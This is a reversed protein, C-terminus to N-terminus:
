FSFLDDFSNDKKSVRLDWELVGLLNSLKKDILAEEMADTDFPLERFWKPLKLEDVPYAISTIGIPNPKLKCVVVKAGDTIAMSYHDNYIRRLKNWNLSAAVHGPTSTKKVVARPNLNMKEQAMSQNEYHTINNARKPSGQLWQDWGRFQKRFDAIKQFIDDKSKGTLVDILVSSLFDQVSKPTDSRKLDLGMAKIEGPSGKQDKRKGEKDFILVAYRKKTIFLGKLACLERSAKIIEGNQQPCNFARVMFDPFSDNTMDGIKDYLDIVNEKTWEFDAFEPLDKMVPYASFYGSDTNHLLVDNGFFFPDADKISIDYVYDDVEGLCEVSKLRTYEVDM